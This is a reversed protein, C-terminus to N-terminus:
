FIAVILVTTYNKSLHQKAIRESFAVSWLPAYIDIYIYM